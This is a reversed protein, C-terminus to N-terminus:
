GNFGGIIYMQDEVLSASHDCRPFNLEYEICNIKEWSQDEISIKYLDNQPGYNNSM